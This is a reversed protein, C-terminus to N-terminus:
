KAETVRDGDAPSLKLFEELQKRQEEYNKEVAWAESAYLRFLPEKPALEVARLIEKLAEKGKLKAMALKGLGFHARATKSDMRLAEAYLAAAKDFNGKRFELEGRLAVSSATRPQKDLLLEAERIDDHLLLGAVPDTQLVLLSTLAMLVILPSSSM